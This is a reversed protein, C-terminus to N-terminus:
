EDEETIVQYIYGDQGVYLGCYLKDYAAKLAEVNVIKDNIDIAM